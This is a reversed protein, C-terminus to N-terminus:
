PVIRFPEAVFTLVFIVLTAVSALARGADLPRPDNETPPHGLSFLVTIIMAWVIWGPWAKLGLWVLFAILLAPVARTARGAFAYLVHGGDLQGVPLLNMSTVLLGFWGAFAIPHLIVTAPDAHLVLRTLILTLLSDGFVFVHAEPPTPLVKSRALGVITAALAVVFGAWPGAAGIDFLARRDPFRSRIRIFAGFTGIFLPFPPGPLFYPLSADVRHRVCMLYHGSEHVLLIAVLTASFPIGRVILRPDAIPDFGAWFAGAITTTIATVLFLLVNLVPPRRRRVSIEVPAGEPGPHPRAMDPESWSSPRGSGPAWVIPRRAMGCRWSSCTGATSSPSSSAGGSPATRTASAM